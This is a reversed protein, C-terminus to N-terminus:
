IDDDEFSSSASSGSTESESDSDDECDYVSDYESESDEDFELGGVDSSSGFFGPPHMGLPTATGVDAYFTGDDAKHVAYGHPHQYARPQGVDNRGHLYGAPRGYASSAAGVGARTAYEALAARYGPGLHTPAVAARARLVDETTLPRLPPIGGFERRGEPLEEGREKAVRMEEVQETARRRAERLPYLAASRLVEKVDSPTYGETARAVAELDFDPSLPVDSLMSRLVACRGYFDPPGVYFSRPMRRLFGPDVDFPRNTAGIILVQPVNNSGQGPSGGSDSQSIVGDWLQMFETKLDRNVEHEGGGGSGGNGGQGRDRFIGDLEDVFIITPAVKRALSFLARVQLETEGVYKRLLTSPTVVLVRANATSALARVLTTKGCGPPGYLLVGPPNSLLGGFYSPPSDAGGATSAHSPDDNSLHNTRQKLMLMPFVLDLLAEKVHELGGIDNWMRAIRQQKLEASEGTSGVTDAVFDGSNDIPSLLANSLLRGETRTLSKLVRRVTPPASTFTGSPPPRALDMPMGSALLRRALDSSAVASAATAVRHRKGSGQGDANDQPTSGTAADVGEETLYPRDHEEQTAAGVGGDSDMQSLEEISESFAEWFAKCLYWAIGLQTATLAIRIIRAPPFYQRLLLSLASATPTSTGLLVGHDDASRRHSRVDPSLAVHPADDSTSIDATFDDSIDHKDGLSDYTSALCSSGTDDNEISDGVIEVDSDEDSYDDELQQASANNAESGTPGFRRESVKAIDGCSEDASSTLAEKQKSEHAHLAPVPAAADPAVDIVELDEGGDGEVSTSQHSLSPSVKRRRRKKRKTTSGPPEVTWRRFFGEPAPGPYPPPPPRLWPRKYDGTLGESSSASPSSAIAFTPSFIVVATSAATLFLAADPCFGTKPRVM